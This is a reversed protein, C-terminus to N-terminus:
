ASASAPTALHACVRGLMKLYSRLQVRARGIQEAAQNRTKEGDTMVGDFNMERLPAIQAILEDAATRLEASDIVKATRPAGGGLGFFAFGSISCGTIHQAIASLSRWRKGDYTFGAPEVTVTIEEQAPENKPKYVRRLVSGVPPIRPDHALSTSVSTCPEKGASESATTVTAAKVHKRGSPQKLSKAQVAPASKQKYSKKAANKLKSM